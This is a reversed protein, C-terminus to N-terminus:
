LSELFFVAILGECSICRGFRGVFVIVNKLLKDSGCKAAVVHIVAGPQTMGGRYRGHQSGQSGPGSGVGDFIILRGIAYQHGAIIDDFGVRDGRGENFRPTAAPPLSM